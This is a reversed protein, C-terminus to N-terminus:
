NETTQITFRFKGIDPYILSSSFIGPITKYILPLYQGKFDLIQLEIDDINEDVSWEIQKPFKFERRFTFPASGIINDDSGVLAGSLDYTASAFFPQITENTLYIRALKHPIPNNTSDADAVKQNKTLTNSVIDVYPTYQFSAYSSEISDYAKSGTSIPIIGLLSLLDDQVVAKGSIASSASSSLLFFTSVAAAATTLEIVVKPINTAVTAGATGTSGILPNGIKDPMYVTFFPASVGLATYAAVIGLDTNLGSEVAKILEAPSYFNEPIIIRETTLVNAGSLDKIQVTLTNNNANVNPIGWEIEAETLALRRFKGPMITRGKNIRINATNVGEILENAVRTYQFGDETSVCLLSTAPYRIPTGKENFEAAFM